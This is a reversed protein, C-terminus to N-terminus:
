MREPAEIGMIELTTALTSKFAACIALRFTRLPEESKLVPCNSYFNSYVQCLEFAYNALYHVQYEEACREVVMPLEEIKKLLEVEEQTLPTEASVDVTEPIGGEELIRCTRAHAYQLYPAARGDFDLARDWDFVIPKLNEVMLMDYKLAGYAVAQIIREREESSLDPRKEEIVKAAEKKLREAIDDYPIVNGKRSAMKGEPLTVLGFPVHICRSAKDFGMLELAKFLQKFYFTQHDAVVYLSKDIEFEDFKRKALAIEKTSYLSSGDSRLLLLVRYTGEKVGTLKDLDMVTAGQSIYALERDLLDAVMEKGEDEVESEFFEVDFPCGLEGYIRHFDDLSVQRTRQWLRYLEQNGEDWQHYVNLFSEEYDFVERDVRLYRLITDILLNLPGEDSRQLGEAVDRLFALCRKLNDIYDQRALTDTFEIGNQDMFARLEGAMNSAYEEPVLTSNGDLIAGILEVARKKLKVSEDLREDADAYVEGLFEAM